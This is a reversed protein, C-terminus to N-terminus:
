HLDVVRLTRGLAHADAFGTTDTTWLTAKAALLGKRAIERRRAIESARSTTDLPLDAEALHALTVADRGLSTWYDPASGFKQEYDAFQPSAVPQVAFVHASAVRLADAGPASEISLGANAGQPLAPLLTRVCAPASSILFDHVNEKAWDALPLRSRSYPPDCRFPALLDLADAKTRALVPEALEGAVTAVKPHRKGARKTLEAVLLTVSADRAEGAVFCFERNQTSAAALTIVVLQNKEAWACAREADAEDFGAVVIAAGAGAVEELSAELTGTGGAAPGGSDARTVLRTGDDTEHARPLGLAFAAGRAADAAADRLEATSTPLVLGVTRAAVAHAGRLSTALDRLDQGTASGTLYKGISSAILRQALQTDQADLAHKALAEALLRQLEPSYGGGGDGQMALMTEQLVSPAIRQLQDRVRDHAAKHEHPPVSRLWGDLYAVAELSRKADISAVAVEELLTTRLPTDVVTGVLPQLIALAADSQKDARLLRARLALWFDHENGLPPEPVQALEARAGEVDKEDLLVHGLELRALPTARDNPYARLFQQFRAALKADHPDHEFAARLTAFAAGAQPSASLTAVVRDGIGGGCAIAFAALVIARRM